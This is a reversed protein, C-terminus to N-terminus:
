VLQKPLVFHKFVKASIPNLAQQTDIILSVAQSHLNFHAIYQTPHQTTTIAAQDFLQWLSFPGTFSIANSINNHSLLTLIITNNKQDFPWSITARQMKSLRITHLGMTLRISKVSSDTSLVRIHLQGQLYNKPFYTAEIFSALQLQLLHKYPLNLRQGLFTKMHWTQTSQHMFPSLYHTIFQPLLGNPAFFRTFNDLSVQQQSKTLPYRGMVHQQYFAYISQQWQQNIYLRSDHLLNALSQQRLSNLWAQLSPPSAASLKNLLVYANHTHNKTSFISRSLQWAAKNPEKHSHIREFDKALQQFITQLNVAVVAARQQLYTHILKLQFKLPPTNNTATTSTVKNLPTLNVYITNLLQNFVQPNKALTAFVQSASEATHFPKVHLVQLYNLWVLQYSQWYLQQIALSLRRKQNDTITRTTTGLIANGHLMDYSAQNFNTQKIKTIGMATYIYPISPLHQDFLTKLKDPLIRLSPKTLYTDALILLGLQAHSLRHLYQRTQKIINGNAVILPPQKALLLFKAHLQTLSLSTKPMLQILWYSLYNADIPLKGSLMLYAHLNSYNHQPDYTNLDTLQQNLTTKISNFLTHNTSNELHVTQKNHSVPAVNKLQYVFFCVFFVLLITLSLYLYPTRTRQTKNHPQSKLLHQNLFDHCFFSATQENPKIAMFFLGNFQKYLTAQKQNLLLHKVQECVRQMASPLAPQLQKISATLSLTFQSTSHATITEIGLLQQQEHNSYTKYQDVFGPLLDCKNLCFSVRLQNLSHSYFRIIDNLQSAITEIRAGNSALIDMADLMIILHLNTHRHALKMLLNRSPSLRTKDITHLLNCDQEIFVGQTSLYYAFAHGKTLHPQAIFQLQSNQLLSTKGVHENGIILYVQNQRLMTDPHQKKYDRYRKRIKKVTM